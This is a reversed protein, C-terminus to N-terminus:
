KINTVDISCNIFNDKGDFIILKQMAKGFLRKGFAYDETGCLSSNTIVTMGQFDKEAGKHYHALFVYDIWEHTAGVFHQMASNPNDEHGHAFCALKGNQLKFMGLGIDKNDHIFKVGKVRSEIHWDIIRNFNEKEIHQSKDAVVRAHNDVVSRYTVIPAAAKLHNLTKSMLEAAVMTQEIVDENNELRTTIHIDGSILDGLNLVHLTKVNHAKCYIITDAVVAALRKTAVQTNYTNVFNSCDLGIHWDSLLLVAEGTRGTSSVPTVDPLKALLSASKVVSEKLNEIRAEDRLGRRFSNLEDRLKTKAKYEEQDFVPEETGTVVKEDTGRMNLSGDKRQENIVWLRYQEGSVNMLNLFKALDSWTFRQKDSRSINQKYELGIAYADSSGALVDAHSYKNKFEKITM